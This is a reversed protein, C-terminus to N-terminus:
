AVEAFLFGHSIIKFLLISFDCGTNGLKCWQHVLVITKRGRHISQGCKSNSSIGLCSRHALLACSPSVSRSRRFLLGSRVRLSLLCGAALLRRRSTGTPACGLSKRENVLLRADRDGLKRLSKTNLLGIEVSDKWRKLLVALHCPVAVAPMRRLGSRGEVFLDSFAHGRWQSRAVVDTVLIPRVRCSIEVAFQRRSQSRRCEPERVLNTQWVMSETASLGGTLALVAPSSSGEGDGRESWRNGPAYAALGDTETFRCACTM